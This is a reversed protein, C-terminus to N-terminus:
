TLNRRDPGKVVAELFALRESQTNFAELLQKAAHEVEPLLDLVEKVFAELEVIRKERLQLQEVLTEERESNM